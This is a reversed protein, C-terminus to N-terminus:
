SSTFVYWIAKDESFCLNILLRSPEERVPVVHALGVVVAAAAGVHVREEAGLLALDPTGAQGESSVLGPALPQPPPPVTVLLCLPEEIVLKCLPTDLKPGAWIDSFIVVVKFCSSSTYFRTFM